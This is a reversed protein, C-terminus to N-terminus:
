EQASTSKTAGDRPVGRPDNGDQSAPSAGDRSANTTARKAILPAVTSRADRCARACRDLSVAVDHLAIVHVVQEPSPPANAALHHLSAGLAQLAKELSGLAAPAVEASEPEAAATQFARAANLLDCGHGDILRPASNMVQVKVDRVSRPWPDPHTNAM